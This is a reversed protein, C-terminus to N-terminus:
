DRRVRSDMKSLEETIRRSLEIAEDMTDTNNILLPVITGIILLHYFQLTDEGLIEVPKKGAFFLQNVGESALTIDKAVDGEIGSVSEIKKGLYKKTEEDM